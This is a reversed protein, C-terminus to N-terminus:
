AMALDLKGCLFLIRVRYNTFNRFGRANAKILLNDWAPVEGNVPLLHAQSFFYGSPRLASAMENRASFWSLRLVLRAHHM